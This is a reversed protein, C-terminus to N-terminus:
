CKIDVKEQLNSDVNFYENANSYIGVFSVGNCSSILEDVKFGCYGMINTLSDKTFAHKHTPDLPISSTIEEDPVAIILKGNPKLYKKWNNITSIADICHELIHRAIIIDFSQEELPMDKTVDASIDAVSPQMYGHPIHDGSKVQDVGISNVVTKQYGCGLELVKEGDKIFSRIIDGELDIVSSQYEKYQGYIITSCWNRFGHKQILAINTKESMQPSNWGGDKDAGGKVREGTKFGHHIIFSSPQILAKYGAKNMRMTLDLDDGGPLTDDIGGVDLLTSRRVMVTFFILYPAEVLSNFSRPHYISQPGACTTTSPGVLGVTSDRFPYLLNYYFRSSTKPIFTDDNQFVVFESDSAELGLKLGGEWGVNKESTIVKVGPVGNFEKDCPQKGNNVIIIEARGSAIVDTNNVISHVCPNLFQPNNWTPIIISFLPKSVLCWDKKINIM